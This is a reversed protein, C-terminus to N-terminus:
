PLIMNRSRPRINSVPMRRKSKPRSLDSRTQIGIIQRRSDAPLMRQRSGFLNQATRCIVRDARSIKPPYIRPLIMWMQTPMWNGPGFKKREMYWSKWGIHRRGLPPELQTKLTTPRLIKRADARPPMGSSARCSKQGPSFAVGSCSRRRLRRRKRYKEQLPRSEKVKGAM